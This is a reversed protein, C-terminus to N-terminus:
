QWHTEAILPSWLKARFRSPVPVPQPYSLMTGSPKHGTTAMAAPSVYLGASLRSPVKAAEPFMPKWGAVTGAPKLLTTAM